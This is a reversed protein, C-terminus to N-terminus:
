FSIITGHIWNLGALIMATGTRKFAVAVVVAVGLLQATTLMSSPM